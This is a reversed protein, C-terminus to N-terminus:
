LVNSIHNLVGIPTHWMDLGVWYLFKLQPRSFHNQFLPFEYKISFVLCFSWHFRSWPLLKVWTMENEFLIPSPDFTTWQSLWLRILVFVKSSVQYVRVRKMFGLLRSQSFHPLSSPSGLQKIFSTNRIISVRVTLLSSHYAYCM